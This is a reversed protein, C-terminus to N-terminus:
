GSPKSAPTPTSTPTQIPPYQFGSAEAARYFKDLKANLEEQVVFDMMMQGMRNGIEDSVADVIITDGTQTYRSATPIHFLTFTGVWSRRPSIGVSPLLIVMEEDVRIQDEIAWVNMLTRVDEATQISPLDFISPSDRSDVERGIQWAYVDIMSRITAMLQEDELVADIRNRAEESNIKTIKVMGDFDLVVESISPIHLIFAQGAWDAASDRDYYVVNIVLDDDLVIKHEDPCWDM